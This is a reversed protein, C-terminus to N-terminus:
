NHWEQRCRSKDITLGATIPAIWTSASLDASRVFNAIGIPIGIRLLFQALVAPIRRSNSEGWAGGYFVLVKSLLMGSGVATVIPVYVSTVISSLDTLKSAGRQSSSAKLDSAHTAEITLHKSSCDRCMISNAGLHSISTFPGEDVDKELLMSISDDIFLAERRTLYLTKDEVEDIYEGDSYIHEDM